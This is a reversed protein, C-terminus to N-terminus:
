SRVSTNKSSVFRAFSTASLSLFPATIVCASSIADTKSSVDDSFVDREDNDDPHTPKLLLM